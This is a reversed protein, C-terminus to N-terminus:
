FPWDPFKEEDNMAERKWTPLYDQFEDCSSINCVQCEYRINYNIEFTNWKPSAQVAKMMGMVWRARDIACTCARRPPAVPRFLGNTPSSGHNFPDRSSPMVGSTRPLKSALTDIWTHYRKIRLERVGLVTILVSINVSDPCVSLKSEHCGSLERLIWKGVDQLRFRIALSLILTPHTVILAEKVMGTIKNERLTIVEQEFWQMIMNAQYKDAMILLSEITDQEIPPTPISPDLHTLFREIVAMPEALKLPMAAEKGQEDTNCMNFMDKFICSAHSLVHGPFYCVVGDGSQLAFDGYGAPFKSSVDTTNSSMPILSARHAHKPRRDHHPDLRKRTAPEESLAQPQNYPYVEVRKMAYQGESIVKRPLPHIPPGYRNYFTLPSGCQVPIPRVSWQVFYGWAEKCVIEYKLAEALAPLLAGREDVLDSNDVPGLASDDAKYQNPTCLRRWHGIWTVSVLYWTDGEKKTTYKLRGPCQHAESV